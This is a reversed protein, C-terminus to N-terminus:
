SLDCSTMTTSAGRPETISGPLVALDLYIISQAFVTSNVHFKLVWSVVGDILSCKNPSVAKLVRDSSNSKHILFRRTQASGMCERAIAYVQVLIRVHENLTTVIDALESFTPM